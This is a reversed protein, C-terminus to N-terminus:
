MKRWEGSTFDKEAVHDSWSVGAQRLYLKMTEEGSFCVVPTHASHEQLHREHANILGSCERDTLFNDM